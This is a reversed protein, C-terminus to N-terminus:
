GNRRFRERSTSRPWFPTLLVADLWRKELRGTSGTKTNVSMVALILTQAIALKMWTTAAFRLPHAGARKKGEGIRGTRLCNM